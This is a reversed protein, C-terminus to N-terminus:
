EKILSPVVAGEALGEVLEPWYQSCRTSQYLPFICLQLSPVHYLLDIHFFLPTAIWLNAEEHRNGHSLQKALEAIMRGASSEVSGHEL